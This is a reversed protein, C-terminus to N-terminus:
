VNICVLSSIIINLKHFSKNATSLLSSLKDVVDDNNKGDGVNNTGALLIVSDVEANEAQNDIGKCRKIYM